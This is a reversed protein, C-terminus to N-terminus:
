EYIDLIEKSIIESGEFGWRKAGRYEIDQVWKEPKFIARIVGKYEALVLESNEARNQRIGM